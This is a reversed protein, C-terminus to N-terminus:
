RGEKNRSLPTYKKGKTCARKHRMPRAPLMKTTEGGGSNGHDDDKDDDKDGNDRDNDDGRGRKRNDRSCTQSHTSAERNTAVRSCKTARLRSAISM